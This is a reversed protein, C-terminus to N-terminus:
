TTPPRRPQRPNRCHLGTDRQCLLDCTTYLMPCCVESIYLPVVMTLQGVAFGAVARGVHVDNKLLYPINVGLLSPTPTGSFLMGVTVASCQVASGVVFVVVALMISMKRGLRDAIPGNILSGLWAATWLVWDTSCRDSEHSLSFSPLLPFVLFCRRFLGGKLGVILTCM